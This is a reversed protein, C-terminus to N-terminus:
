KKVTGKVLNIFGRPNIVPGVATKSASRLLLTKAQGATLAPNIQLGLAVVGALYPTSWSRGGVADFVYVDNGDSGARTRNGGPVWLEYRQGEDWKEPSYDKPNDPNKGTRALNGFSMFSEACDIIIIGEKKAQETTKKWEEFHDWNKFSGASMSVIRIQKEMPMNKNRAMVEKLAATYSANDAKWSPVAFYYLEAKPAIGTTRGALFGAVAPGHMQAETKGTAATSYYVLAQAYEGHEPLLPQDIIAVRVGRGDAGEKHLARVGLGPNKGNEMIEAPNYNAPMMKQPPWKTRTDFHKGELLDAHGRLDLKELSVGALGTISDLRNIDDINRLVPMGLEVPRDLFLGALTAPAGTERRVFVAGITDPYILRLVEGDEEEQLPKGFMARFEEPETIREILNGAKVQAQMKDSLPSQAHAPAALMLAAALATFIKLM